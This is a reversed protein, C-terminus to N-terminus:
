ATKRTPCAVTTKTAENNKQITDAFCYVPFSPTCILIATMVATDEM